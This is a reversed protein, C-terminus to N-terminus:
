NFPIAAFFNLHFKKTLIRSHQLYMPIGSFFNGEMAVGQVIRQVSNFGLKKAVRKM